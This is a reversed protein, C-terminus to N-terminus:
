LLILKAIALGKETYMVFKEDKKVEIFGATQLKGLNNPDLHHASKLFIGERVNHYDLSYDLWLTLVRIAEQEVAENDEETM